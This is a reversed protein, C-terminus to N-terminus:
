KSEEDIVTLKKELRRGENDVLVLIHAGAAPAVGMQHIDSTSGIYTEDLHWHITANADRHAAELVAAGRTGDRERPIFIAADSHPYILGMAAIGGADACGAALPPLPLYDAHGRRYYTEIEPPLVFYPRHTMSAIDACLSSVRGRGTKDLHVLQHFPCAGTELGKIPAPATDTEPCWSGARFGSQRCVAIRCLEAEPKPFGGGGQPLINLIDFLVPAAVEIGILGPRGEGSANGAWVGIAYQPTCGIAWADRFGFSTGTKWAIRKSSSFERWASEEGPRAVEEMAQLALWCAAASLPSEGAAKAGRCLGAEASFFPPFFPNRAPLAPTGFDNVCRAMGAYIGTLEWLTGEAGGLILSIGYEDAPRFLTTMGVKTLSRHFRGVGHTVLMRVAPVNLSRALATAAPVAGAYGRNFNQPTYGGISTPIDPILTGPLLEGADLMAAYLLPKLVSGTSRRATIMDVRCGDAATGSDGCPVNGVYVFAAGKEVDLVVAGFHRIGNGAAARGHRNVIERALDQLPGSITTRVRFQRATAGNRPINIVIRDCLHPARDPLPRPAGPLPEARALALSLSDLDGRRRLLDLLRNRKGLLRGRNRGPHVLAPENPLVALTAAEAWSLDAPPRGFYRWAAAEVGVVNGGFPAHAAYLSSIEKKSKVLDLRLALAIEIAKELLTRPRGRRSLRIVQMTITSGGSKVRGARMNQALARCLSLPDVGPHWFFRKDEFAVMAKVFKDPVAAGPPLRWQGDAAIRASLLSGTHDEIVLSWPDNFLTQPWLLWITAALLFCLPFLIIKRYIYLRFKGV